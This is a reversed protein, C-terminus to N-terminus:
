NNFCPDQQWKQLKELVQRQPVKKWQMMEQHGQPCVQLVLRHLIKQAKLRM